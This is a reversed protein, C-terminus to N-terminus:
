ILFEKNSPNMNSYTIKCNKLEPNCFNKDIKESAGFEIVDGNIKFKKFIELQFIRLISKNSFILNFYNM